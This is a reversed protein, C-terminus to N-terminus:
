REGRSEADGPLDRFRESSKMRAVDDVFVDFRGVNQNIRAREGRLKGIEPNGGRVHVLVSGAASRLINFARQPINRRFLSAPHVSADVSAGVKISEACRQVFHQRLPRREVKLIRCLEHVPVQRNQGARWGLQVRGNRFGQGSQHHLEEGLVRLVSVLAGRTQRMIQRDKPLRTLRCATAVTKGESGAVHGVAQANGLAEVPSLGFDGRQGLGNVGDSGPARQQHQDGAGGADPLRRQDPLDHSRHRSPSTMEDRAFKILEVARRGVPRNPLREPVQDALDQAFGGLANLSQPAREDPFHTGVCLDNEVDNRAEFTQNARYRQSRPQVGDLRLVTEIEHKAPQNAHQRTRTTRQHDEEVVKL